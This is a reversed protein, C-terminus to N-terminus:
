ALIAKQIFLFTYPQEKICFRNFNVYLEVRKQADFTRRYRKSCPMPVPTKTSSM